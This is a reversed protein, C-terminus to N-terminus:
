RLYYREEFVDWSKSFTHDLFANKLGTAQKLRIIEELEMGLQQAIAQEDWGKSALHNVLTALQDIQHVGRARNHRVTSAMRHEMPKDILVIPLKNLHLREKGVTYRHFGDVILYHDLGADYYCVIPQTFGDEKISLELLDLETPAVHNPNYDNAFIKATEVLQINLVPMAIAKETM